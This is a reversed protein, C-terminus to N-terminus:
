NKGSVMEVVLLQLARATAPHLAIPRAYAAVTASILDDTMDSLGPTTHIAYQLATAMQRAAETLAAPGDIRTILVQNAAQESWDAMVDDDPVDEDSVSGESEQGLEDEFGVMRTLQRAWQTELFRFIATGDGSRGGSESFFPQDHTLVTVDDQDVLGVQMLMNTYLDPDTSSEGYLARGVPTEGHEDVFMKVGQEVASHRMNAAETSPHRLSQDERDPPRTHDPRIHAWAARSRDPLGSAVMAERASGGMITKESGRKTGQGSAEQFWGVSPQPASRTSHAGPQPLAAPFVAGVSQHQVDSGRHHIQLRDGFYSTTDAAESPVFPTGKQSYSVDDQTVMRDTGGAKFFGGGGQAKAKGAFPDIWEVGAAEAERIDAMTIGPVGDWVWKRPNTKDWQRQIIRHGYTAKLQALQQAQPSRNALGHIVHLRKVEPSNRMM